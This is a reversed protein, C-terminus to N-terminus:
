PRKGALARRRGAADAEPKPPPRSRTPAAAGPERLLRKAFPLWFDNQHNSMVSRASAIETGDRNRWAQRVGEHRDEISKGVWEDSLRLYITAGKSLPRHIPGPHGKEEEALENRVRLLGVKLEKVDEPNGSLGFIGTLIPIEEFDFVDTEHWDRKAVYKLEKVLRGLETEPQVRHGM